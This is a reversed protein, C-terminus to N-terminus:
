IVRAMVRFVTVYVCLFGWFFFGLKSMKLALVETKARFQIFHPLCCEAIIKASKTEPNHAPPDM